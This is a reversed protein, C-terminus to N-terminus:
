TIIIISQVSSTPHGFCVKSCAAGRCNKYCISQIITEQDQAGRQTADRKDPVTTTADCVEARRDTLFIDPLMTRLDNPAFDIKPPRLSSAEEQL